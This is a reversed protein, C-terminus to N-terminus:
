RKPSQRKRRAKGGMGVKRRERVRPDRTLLGNKRLLPKNEEDMAGLCRSIGLVVAGLQSRQGGGVVKATVAYKNLTNTIKFPKEYESKAVVGSFYESVAKGNVVIDGKKVVFEEFKLDDTVKQYIRVRAVAARRRGVAHMYEKYKKAGSVKTNEHKNEAM